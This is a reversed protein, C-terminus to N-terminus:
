RHLSCSAVGDHGVSVLPHHLEASVGIGQIELEEGMHLLGVLGKHRVVFVCSLQMRKM